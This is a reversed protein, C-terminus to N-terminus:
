RRLQRGLRQLAARLAPDTVGEATEELCRAATASRRSLHRRAPAARVDPPAVRVQVSAVHLGASGLNGTLERGLYRLRTAWSAADASLHLVHGRLDAAICHSALEAPLTERVQRLLANRAAIAGTLNRLTGSGILKDISQM